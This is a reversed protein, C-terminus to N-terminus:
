STSSSPETTISLLVSSSASSPRKRPPRPVFSPTWDANSFTTIPVGPQSRPAHQQHACPERWDLACGLTVRGHIRFRSSLRKWCNLRTTRRRLKWSRGQATKPRRQACTSDAVRVPSRSTLYPNSTKQSEGVCASAGTHGPGRCTEPAFGLRLTCRAVAILNSRELHDAVVASARSMVDDQIAGGFGRACM